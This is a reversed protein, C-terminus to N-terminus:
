NTLVLDVVIKVHKLRNQLICTGSKYQMFNWHFCEISFRKHFNWPLNEVSLGDTRKGRGRDRKNLTNFHKLGEEFPEHGRWETKISCQMVNYMTYIDREISSFAHKYVVCNSLLHTCSESSPILIVIYIIGGCNTMNKVTINRKFITNDDWFKQTRIIRGFAFIPFVRRPLLVTDVREAIVGGLTFRNPHFRFNHSGFTLAPGPANQVRDACYRCNSLFGFKKQWAFLACNWRWIFKRLVIWFKVM